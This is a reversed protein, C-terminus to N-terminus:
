RWKGSGSILRPSESIEVRGQNKVAAELAKVFLWPLMFGLALSLAGAVIFAAERNM